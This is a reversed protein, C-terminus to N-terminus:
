NGRDNGKGNDCNGYGHGQGNGNNCVVEVSSIIESTLLQDSLVGGDIDACSTKTNSCSEWAIETKNGTSDVCWAIESNVNLKACVSWLNENYQCFASDSDESMEGFISMSESDFCFNEYNFYQEYHKAGLKVLSDMRLKISADNAKKVFYGLDKAIIVALIGIISIVVALEVITFGRSHNKM